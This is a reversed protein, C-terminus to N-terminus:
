WTCMRRVSTMTSGAMVMAGRGVISCMGVADPATARISAVGETSLVMGGSSATAVILTGRTGLGALIGRVRGAGISTLALTSIIMLGGSRIGSALTSGLTTEERGGGVGM